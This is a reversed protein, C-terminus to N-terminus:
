GAYYKRAMFSLPLGIMVMLIVINILSSVLHVPGHPVNSLPLIILQMICWIILGYSLGTAVPYRRMAAIKPYILFFICSWILAICYHFLLGWWPMAPDGSFAAKGFVGSGIYALLTRVPGHTVLTFYVIASLIDLTGVILGAIFVSGPFSSPLRM